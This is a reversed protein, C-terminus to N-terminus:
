PLRLQKINQVSQYGLKRYSEFQAEDFFQDGTSQQPFEPNNVFYERIDVTENGTLSTKIYVITGTAQKKGPYKITGQVM